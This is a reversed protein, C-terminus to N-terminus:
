WEIGSAGSLHFGGQVLPKRHGGHRRRASRFGLSSLEASGRWRALQMSAAAYDDATFHAEMAVAVPQVPKGDAYEALLQMARLNGELAMTWLVRAMRERRTMINVEVPSDYDGEKVRDEFAVREEGVERLLETLSKGRCRRKKPQGSQGAIWRAM